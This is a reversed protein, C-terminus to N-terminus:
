TSTIEGEVRRRIEAAIEEPVNGEILDLASSPAAGSGILNEYWAWAKEVPDSPREAEALEAYREIHDADRLILGIAHYQKTRDNEGNCHPDTHNGRIADILLDAPYGEDLRRQIMRRREPSLMARPHYDRYVAWIEDIMVDEQDRSV